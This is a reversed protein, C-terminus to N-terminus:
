LLFKIKGPQNINNVINNLNTNTNLTSTDNKQNNAFINSDEGKSSDVLDLLSGGLEDNTQAGINQYLRKKEFLNSTMSGIFM